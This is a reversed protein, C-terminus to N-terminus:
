AYIREHFFSFSVLDVSQVSKVTGNDGPQYMFTQLKAGNDSGGDQFDYKGKFVHRM